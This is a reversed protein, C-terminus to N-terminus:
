KEGPEQDAGPFIERLKRERYAFIERLRPGVLWQNVLPAVPAAPLVYHVLDCMEVGGPVERLHHQHHWFRYPGFRQEDVFLHPAVVHTIETVWTLRVAPMPSVRYTVIMGPHMRAPLESTVQFGMWEPTIRALNSADSVFSWADTLSIPLVQRTELKRLKMPSPHPTSRVARTESRPRM